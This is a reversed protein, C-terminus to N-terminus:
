AGDGDARLRVLDDEVKLHRPPSRRCPVGQRRTGGGRRAHVDGLDLRVGIRLADSRTSRSKETGPGANQMPQGDPFDLERNSLSAPISPQASARGFSEISALPDCATARESPNTASQLRKMFGPGGM